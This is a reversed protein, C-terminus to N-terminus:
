GEHLPEAEGGSVHCSIYSALQPGFERLQSLRFSCPFFCLSDPRAKQRRFDTFRPFANVMPRDRPALVM